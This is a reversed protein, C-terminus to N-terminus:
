GVRVMVRGLLRGEVIRVGEGEGRGREEVEAM